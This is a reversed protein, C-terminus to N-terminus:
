DRPTKFHQAEGFVRRILKELIEADVLEGLNEHCFYLRMFFGKDCVECLVSNLRMVEPAHAVMRTPTIEVSFVLGADRPPQPFYVRAKQLTTKIAQPKVIQEVLSQFHELPSLYEVTMGDEFRGAGVLQTSVVPIEAPEM